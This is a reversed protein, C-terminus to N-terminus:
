EDSVSAPAPLRLKAQIFTMLREDSVQNKRRLITNNNDFDPGDVKDTSVVTRMLIPTKNDYARVARLCRLGARDMPQTPDFPRSTQYTTKQWDVLLDLIYLSPQSAPRSSFRDMFEAECSVIEVAIEPWESELMKKFHSAQLEEDELFVVLHKKQAM